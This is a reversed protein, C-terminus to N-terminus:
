LLFTSVKDLVGYKGLEDTYSFIGEVEGFCLNLHYFSFFIYILYTHKVHCANYLYLCFASLLKHFIQWVNKERANIPM